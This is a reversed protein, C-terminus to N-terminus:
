HVLPVDINDFGVAMNAIVKLNPAAKIVESDIKESLTILCATADKIAELFQDRPMPILSEDWMEVQAIAELQDIFPQPISRSVIIKEM